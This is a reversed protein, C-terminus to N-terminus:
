GSLAPFGRRPPSYLFGQHLSCGLGGLAQREGETEVGEAILDVEMERCLHVMSQVIKKSGPKRDIGQILARDLKVVSPELTLFSTLGSYGAGLDDVALRFGAARLRDLRREVGQVRDLADRETIELVVRHAYPRLPEAASYLQDDELESANLNVFIRADRPASPIAAAM